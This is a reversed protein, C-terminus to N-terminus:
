AGNRSTNNGIWSLMAKCCNTVDLIEIKLSKLQQLLIAKSIHAFWVLICVRRLGSNVYLPSSKSIGYAITAETYM